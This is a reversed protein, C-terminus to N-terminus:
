FASELPYNAEPTYIAGNRGLRSSYLVFSDVSFDETIFAAHAGLYAALRDVKKGKLRALTVHPHFKRSEAVLGARALALEIKSQLAILEDSPRTGVWLIRARRRDGFFDVGNFALRFDPCRIGSLVADVEPLLPEEVEGIFQLTLHMYNPDVWRVNPIGNCLSALRNRVPEPLQLAVFLRIM